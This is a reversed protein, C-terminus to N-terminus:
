APRAGDSVAGRVGTGASACAARGVAQRPAGDQGPRRARAHRRGAAAAGRGRRRLHDAHGRARRHARGRARRRLAQREPTSSSATSSTSARTRRRAACREWRSATPRACPRGRRVVKYSIAHGDDDTVTRWSAMGRYGPDVIFVTRTVPAVSPRPRASAVRRAPSPVGDERVSAALRAAALASASSGVAPRRAARGRRDPRGRRPARARRGPASSRRSTSTLLAPM